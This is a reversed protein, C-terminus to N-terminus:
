RKIGYRCQLWYLYRKSGKNSCTSRMSLVREFGEYHPLFNDRGRNQVHTNLMNLHALIKDTDQYPSLVALRVSPRAAGNRMYSCDIPGYQCLGKLQNVVRKSKDTDSFCILPEDYKCSPMSLWKTRRNNGGLSIAPAVFSISFGESEFFIKGSALVSIGLVSSKM